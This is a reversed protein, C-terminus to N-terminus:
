RKKGTVLRNTRHSFNNVIINSFNTYNNVTNTKVDERFKDKDINPWETIAIEM